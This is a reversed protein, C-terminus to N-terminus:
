EGYSREVTVKMHKGGKAMFNIFAYFQTALESPTSAEEEFKKLDEETEFRVMDVWTEGSQMLEWSLYGKKQSIEEKNLRETALLFDSVSAGKKLQYINLHIANSM